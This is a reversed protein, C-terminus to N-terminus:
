FGLKLHYRAKREHLVHKAIKGIKCESFSSEYISEPISAKNRKLFTNPKITTDKYAHWQEKNRSVERRWTGKGLWEEESRITGEM